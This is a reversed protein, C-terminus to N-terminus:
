QIKYYFFLIIMLFIYEPSFRFHLVIIAHTKQAKKKEEKNNKVRTKLM